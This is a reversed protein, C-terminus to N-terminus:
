QSLTRKYITFSTGHTQWATHTMNGKTDVIRFNDTHAHTYHSHHCLVGARCTVANQWPEQSVVQVSAWKERGLEEGGRPECRVSVQSMLLQFGAAQFGFLESEM